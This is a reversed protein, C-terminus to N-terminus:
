FNSKQLAKENTSNKQLLKMEQLLQENKVEAVNLIRRHNELRPIKHRLLEENQKAQTLQYQL